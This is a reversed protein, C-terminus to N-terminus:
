IGGEEELTKKLKKLAENNKWTVTGIPISLMEAVERRKYGAVQCLMLIEYEDEALCKMAAEFVYPLQISGSGYKYANVTFDESFERRYKKIHNLAISRGISCLWGVFSTGAAYQELRSIARLYTDQLIDEAYMKDRVIYLVAFYVARNTQEYIYDFASNDGSKLLEIHKELKHTNM